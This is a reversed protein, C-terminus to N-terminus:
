TKKTMLSLLADLKSSLDPQIEIVKDVKKELTEQKIRQAEIDAQMKLIYAPLEPDMVDKGK